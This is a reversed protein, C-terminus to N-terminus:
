WGWVVGELLAELGRYDDAPAPVFRPDKSSYVHLLAASAQAGEPSLLYATVKRKQEASLKPGASLTQNPAEPTGYVINLAQREAQPIKSDYYYNRLIAAACRGEKFAAYVDDFDGGAIDVIVPQRVPNTFRSLVFLTGFNPSALSCVSKGVLAERDSLSADNSVVNFAAAGPVRVLPEHGIRKMRWAVFHPSDIILDYHGERMLTSYDQWHKTYEYVVKQGIVGSLAEAMPGYLAQNEEETGRPVGTLVLDAWAAPAMLLALLLALCARPACTSM